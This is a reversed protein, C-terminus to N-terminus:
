ARFGRGSRTLINAGRERGWGACILPLAAKARMFLGHNPPCTFYQKDKVKAVRQLTLGSRFRCAHAKCTQWVEVCSLAFACECDRRCDTRFVKVLCLCLQNISFALPEETTRAVHSTWCLEECGSSPTPKPSLPNPTAPRWPGAHKLGFGEELVLLQM